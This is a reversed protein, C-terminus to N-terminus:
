CYRECSEGKLLINTISNVEIDERHRKRQRASFSGKPHSSYSSLACWVCLRFLPLYFWYCFVFCETLGKRSFIGDRVQGSGEWTPRDPQALPRLWDVLQASHYWAPHPHDASRGPLLHQLAVGGGSQGVGTSDGEAAGATLCGAKFCWQLVNLHWFNLRRLRWSPSHSAM